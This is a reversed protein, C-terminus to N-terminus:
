PVTVSYTTSGDVIEVTAGRAPAPNISIWNNSAYFQFATETGNVKVSTPRASFGASNAAGIWLTGNNVNCTGPVTAPASADAYSWTVKVTPFTIGDEKWEAGKNIAGTMRFSCSEWGSADAKQVYGYKQTEGNWKAEYNSPDGSVVKEIVAASSGLAVVDGSADTDEIALYLKRSTDGSFDADDAYAISSDGATQQELKVTVRIDQANENTLTQAASNETYTKADGSTETLFFIGTSGTFTSNGYKVDGSPDGSSAPKNANASGTKSVLDNPDAIYDFTGAPITPLTVSLIPYQLEGGEYNGNGTGTGVDGSTDAFVTMASGMTMAVTLAVATLKKLNKM